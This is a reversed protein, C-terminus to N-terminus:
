HWFCRLNSELNNVSGVFWCLDNEVHKTGIKV